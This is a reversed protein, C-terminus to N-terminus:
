SKKHNGMIEAALAHPHLSTAIEPHLEVASRDQERWRPIFEGSVPPSSLGRAMRTLLVGELLLGIVVLIWLRGFEWMVTYVGLPVFTLFAGVGLVHSRLVIGLVAMAVVISLAGWWDM